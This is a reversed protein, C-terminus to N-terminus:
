FHISCNPLYEYLYEIEYSSFNNKSIDLYILNKLGRFLSPFQQLRNKGLLLVELKRLEVIEPPLKQIKNKYLNLYKLNKLNGIEKPLETISNQSLNLEQLNPFLFAEPPISKLGQGSLDLRFVKHPNLLAKEIQTYLPYEKAGGFNVTPKLQAFSCLSIYKLLIVLVIINRM